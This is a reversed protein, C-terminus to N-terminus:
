HIQGNPSSVGGLAQRRPRHQRTREAAGFSRAYVGPPLGVIRRFHRHLQSEDYFGVAQAAEAVLVGRRLLERARSVRLHTLYEYPPLGVEHRFARVLHFKDLGAHAALEDLTIKDPLADHLFARARRVARPARARSGLTAGIIENLTEAVLTAREIEPAGDRVLADHMAFALRSAREGPAFGPARFCAAGRVGMADAAAAVLEPALGAGQLTFPTHVRLDRHVEGPEKLKLSGAVHTRVGGRYWGDFAGECVVIVSFHDAYTIRLRDENELRFMGTISSMEPQWFRVRRPEATALM